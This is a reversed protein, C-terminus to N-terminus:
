LWRCSGVINQALIADNKTDFICVTKDRSCSILIESEEDFFMSSIRLNHLKLSRVSRASTYTDSVKFIRLDGNELGLFVTLSKSNWCIASVPEVFDQNILTDWRDNQGASWLSFSGVPKESVPKEEWPLKANAIYSNFKSIVKPDQLACLLINRSADFVLDNLGFNTDSLTFDLAPPLVEASKADGDESRSPLIGIGQGSLEIFSLFEKSRVIAPVKIIEQLYRNLEAHRKSVANMDVSSFWSAFPLIDLKSPFPLVSKSIWLGLSKNLQDFESFRKKVTWSVQENAFKISISITYTVKDSSQESALSNGTIELRLSDQLERFPLKKM